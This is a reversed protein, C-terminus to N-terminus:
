LWYKIQEFILLWTFDSIDFLIIKNFILFTLKKIGTIAPMKEAIAM